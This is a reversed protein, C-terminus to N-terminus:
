SSRRADGNYYRLDASELLRQMHPGQLALQATALCEKKGQLRDAPDLHPEQEFSPAHEASPWHQCYLSLAECANRYKPHVPEREPMGVIAKAGFRQLVAAYLVKELFDDEQASLEEIMQTFARTAKAIFFQTSISRTQRIGYRFGLPRSLRALAHRARKDFKPSHKWEPAHDASWSSAAIVSDPDAQLKHLYRLIVQQDMIWTDAELHVIFDANFRDVASKISAALLDLAGTTLPRPPRPLLLDELYPEYASHSCAHVVPWKAPWNFKMIEM